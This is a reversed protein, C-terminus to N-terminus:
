QSILHRLYFDDLLSPYDKYVLGVMGLKNAALVNEETDDIFVCEEPKVGLKQCALMYIRSDPKELEEESSNMFLDFYQAFNNKSKFKDMTLGTGNNIVALKYDRKKLEPLLSNWVLEVKSYKDVIKELIEDLKSNRTISNIRLKEVFERDDKSIARLAEATEVVTDPKYNPDKSLLPGVMDFIIAKIM